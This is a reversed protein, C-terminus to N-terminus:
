GFRAPSSKHLSDQQDSNYNENQTNQREYNRKRFIVMMTYFDAVGVDSDRGFVVFLQWRCDSNNQNDDSRAEDDASSASSDLPERRTIHRVAIASVTVTSASDVAQGHAKPILAPESM